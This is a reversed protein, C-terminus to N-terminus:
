SARVAAGQEQAAGGVEQGVVAPDDLFPADEGRLHLDRVGAQRSPVGRTSRRMAVLVGIVLVAGGLLGGTTPRQGLLVWATVMAVLPALLVCPVM